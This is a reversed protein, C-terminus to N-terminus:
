PVCRRHFEAKKEIEDLHGKMQNNLEDIIKQYNKM